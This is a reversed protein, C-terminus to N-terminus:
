PAVRIAGDGSISVTARRAGRVITFTVPSAAAGTTDFVARKTVGPEVLVNTGAQWRKAQFPRESLPQWVGHSRRSTGYGEATVWISMDRSEVIADDRAAIARAAFAEAEARANGGSGPMALVVAGTAIGIIAVVVMLEVLTFGNETTFPKSGTVSTPM